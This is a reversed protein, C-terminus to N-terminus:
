SSPGACAPRLGPRAVVLEALLPRRSRATLWLGSAARRCGEGPAARRVAAGVALGAPTRYFPSTTAIAVVLDSRYWLRLRGGPVRHEELTAGGGDALRVATRARAAGYLGRVDSRSMGIRASGLSRGALADAPELQWAGADAALGLPRLRGGHDVAPATAASGAGVAASGRLPRADFAGPQASAFVRDLPSRRDTPSCAVGSWVNHAFRVNPQCSSRADKRAVNGEVVAGVLEPDVRVGGLMSNYRATAGAWREGSGATFAIANGGRRCRCDDGVIPEDLVSNEVTIKEPLGVLATNYPKVLVDFDTCNRFTTRRITVRRGPWILLCESHKAPDSVTYDHFLAGEILIDEAPFCGPVGCANVHSVGDELPGFDGGLVRVDRASTVVLGPADVRRLTVDETGWRLAVVGDVVVDRLEFHRAGTPARTDGTTFAALRVLAGPAPQFVVEEGATKAEDRRLRQAPYAGAALEVVQGPAALRYARDLSACPAASTCPAADSGAPAVYLRPREPASAASPLALLALLLAPGALM